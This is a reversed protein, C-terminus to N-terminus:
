RRRRQEDDTKEKEDDADGNRGRRNNDRDRMMRMRDGNREIILRMETADILGDQNMDGGRFFTRQQQPVENGSLMGDGDRDFQMMQGIMQRQEAGPGGPGGQFAGTGGQPGGAGGPFQNRMQQMRLMAANVEERSLARDGNTDAGQLQQVVEAPLENATLMGDRNLDSQMIRDVMPASDGFQGGAVPPMAPGGACGVESLTLNGDQDTDLKKLQVVARRLERQTIVGDGDADIAEFM